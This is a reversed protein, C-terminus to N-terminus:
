SQRLATPPPPAIPPLGPGDRSPLALACAVGLIIALGWALVFIARVTGAGAAAPRALLRREAREAALFARGEATVRLGVYITVFATLLGALGGVMLREIVTLTM